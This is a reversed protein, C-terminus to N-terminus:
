YVKSVCCVRSVEHLFPLDVMDPVEKLRGEETVNQLPLAQNPYDKLSITQKEFRLAARGGDSAIFQEEKYCPISVLCGVANAGANANGGVGGNGVGADSYELVRAPIWSHDKSHIYVHKSTKM